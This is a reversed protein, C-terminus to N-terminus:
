LYRLSIKSQEVDKLARQLRVHQMKKRRCSTRIIRETGESCQAGLVIRKIIEPPVDALADCLSYNLNRNGKYSVIRFESEYSWKNLKWFVLDHNPIVNGAETLDMSLPADGYKVVGCEGNDSAAFDSVWPHTQDFEVAFGKHGDSYHAWLLLADPDDPATQSFCLIRFHRRQSEIVSLALEKIIPKNRNISERILDLMWDRIEDNQKLRGERALRIAIEPVWKRCITEEIKRNWKGHNLFQLNPLLEFPDNLQDAPTFRIKLQKILSVARDPHCYKFM